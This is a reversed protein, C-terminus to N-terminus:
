GLANSDEVVKRAAQEIAERVMEADASPGAGQALTESGGGSGAGLAQFAQQLVAKMDGPADASRGFVLHTRDGTSGLLVIVGPEKTLSSALARIKTAPEDEFVKAIIRRDGASIAGRLMQQAETQDLKNQLRRVARQAEKEGEQLRAVSARLDGQGTTLQATLQQIVQNVARYHLLARRGCMFHIRAKKNRLEQKVVKIQGVEGTRAVHTGGCATLDFDLIDILRLKDNGNPPIKRLNLAEAEVRTTWRVLVPRNQWVIENAMMEAAKIEDETLREKDLDITVTEDSLHFGVTQAGAVQIFAQSLIHQGSHQQMHDFRRGQDIRGVLAEKDPAEVLFHVIAGDEKRVQVDYVAIGALTGRDNPQGGSTPYFYTRDLVVRCGERDREMEVVRASFESTYSDAYYLRNNM